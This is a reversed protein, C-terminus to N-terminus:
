LLLLAKWGPIVFWKASHLKLLIWPICTKWLLAGDPQPALWCDARIERFMCSQVLICLISFALCAFFSVCTYVCRHKGSFDKRSTDTLHLSWVATIRGLPSCPLLGSTGGPTVWCLNQGGPPVALQQERLRVVGARLLPTSVNWWQVYEKRVYGSMQLISFVGGWKHTPQLYWDLLLFKSKDSPTISWAATEWCPYPSHRHLSM